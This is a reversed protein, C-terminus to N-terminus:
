NLSGSSYYQTNALPKGYTSYEPATSLVDVAYIYKSNNFIVNKYYNTVGNVTSNTAKSLYAFKEVVTGATGTFLGNEDVVVVHLEDASGGAAAAQTSTGPAGPFYGKYTWVAFDTSNDCVSVKLSNGIAGPYRATFSGYIGGNDSNLYSADFVDENKILLATGGTANKAATGVSRAVYLNNGYSLFNAASFFSVATNSNPKGFTNSLSIENTVQKLKDVPGWTFQGAFAGATTSVSPVANTLDVESVNVGPSLQFAM